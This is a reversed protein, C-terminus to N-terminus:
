FVKEEGRKENVAKEKGLKKLFSFNSMEDHYNRAVSTANHGITSVKNRKHITKERESEGIAKWPGSFLFFLSFVMVM